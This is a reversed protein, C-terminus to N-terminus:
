AFPDPSPSASFTRRRLHAPLIRLSARYKAVTRRAVSIRREALRRAILEDSLPRKADEAEILRQIEFKITADSIVAPGSDGAPTTGPQAASRDQAVGSAFFQELRVVGFPTDMTKGAIARSVTSPHRGVLQAVQAQTLPKLGALGRELFDRQLSILCRGISLLTTNREDIARIVWGAQRFKNALFEKAEKPTEPDRLMRHYTRSITVQPVHEDVLEVDFHDERRVIALDPVICSPLDGSYLRGPKPNLRKLCEFTAEVAALSAGTARAIADLRHHLFLDFHDRLMRTALKRHEMSKMDDECHEVQLLLCEQLNRAGVGPPDLDQVIALAEELENVPAALGEALEELATRLYGDEDLQQIIAETLRRQEDSLQQCGLQTLLTEYLSPTKISRQEVVRRSDEDPDDEDTSSGWTPELSAEPADPAEGAPEAEKPLAEDAEATDDALEILPNEEAQQQIFGQLELTAMRLIELALTINPAMM